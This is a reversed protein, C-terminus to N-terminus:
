AKEKVKQVSFGHCKQCARPPSLARQRTEETGCDRCRWRVFLVARLAERAQALSSSSDDQGATAADLAALVRLAAPELQNLYATAAYSM